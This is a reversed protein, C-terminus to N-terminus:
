TTIPSESIIDSGDTDQIQRTYAALKRLLSFNICIRPSYFGYLFEHFIFNNYFHISRCIHIEVTSTLQIQLTKDDYSDNVTWEIYQASHHMAGSTLAITIM